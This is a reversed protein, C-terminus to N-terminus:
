NQVYTANITIFSVSEANSSAFSFGISILSLSVVIFFIVNKLTKNKDCDYSVHVVQADMMRM